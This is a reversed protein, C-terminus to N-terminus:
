AHFGEYYDSYFKTVDVTAALSHDNMCYLSLHGNKKGAGTDCYRINGLPTQMEVATHGVYLYDLGQIHREEGRYILNRSTLMMTELKSGELCGENALTSCCHDWDQNFLEAHVIGLREGSPMNVEILYPLKTIEDIIEVRQEKSLRGYWAGGNKAHHLCVGDVGSVLCFDDHNGRVTRFWSKRLWDVVQHSEPGRDVLDGGGLLMDIDPNFGVEKLLYDLASYHGHIDTVFFARSGIIPSIKLVHQYTNM